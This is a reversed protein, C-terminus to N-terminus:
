PSPQRAFVLDSSSPSPPDHLRAIRQGLECGEVGGPRAVTRLDRAWEKWEKDFKGMRTAPSLAGAADLLACVIQQQLGQAALLALIALCRDKLGSQKYEV